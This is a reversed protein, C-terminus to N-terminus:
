RYTVRRVKRGDSMVSKSKRANETVTPIHIVNVIREARSVGFAPVTNTAGARQYQAHRYHNVVQTMIRANPGSRVKM